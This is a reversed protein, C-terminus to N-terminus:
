ALYEMYTMVCALETDTSLCTEFYDRRVAMCLEKGVVYLLKSNRKRVWKQV